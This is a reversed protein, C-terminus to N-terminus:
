VFDQMMLPFGMDIPSQVDMLNRGHHDGKGQHNHNRDFALAHKIEHKAVKYDIKALYVAFPIWLLLCFRAKKFQKNIVEQEPSKSAKYGCIAAIMILGNVALSCFAGKKM